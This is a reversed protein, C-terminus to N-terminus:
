ERDLFQFNKTKKEELAETLHSDKTLTEPRVRGQKAIQPLLHILFSPATKQHPILLDIGVYITRTIVNLYKCDVCSWPDRGIAEVLIMPSTYYSELAEIM